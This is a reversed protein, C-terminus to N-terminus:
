EKEVVEQLRKLWLTENENLEVGSETLTTYFIEVVERDALALSLLKESQSLTLKRGNADCAGLIYMSDDPNKIMSVLREQEEPSLVQESQLLEAAKEATIELKETEPGDSEPIKEAM